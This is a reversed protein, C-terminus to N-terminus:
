AFRRKAKKKGRNVFDLRSLILFQNLNTGEHTMNVVANSFGNKGNQVNKVRHEFPEHGNLSIVVCGATTTIRQEINKEVV